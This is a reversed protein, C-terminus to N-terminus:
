IDKPVTPPPRLKRALDETQEKTMGPAPRVPPAAEPPVADPAAQAPAPSPVPAAERPPSTDPPAERSWADTIVVHRAAPGPQAAMAVALVRGWADLLPRGGIAGTAPVGAEVVEVQGEAVIRRVVGETLVVEGAADVGAAYVKDGAKPAVGRIPLPWSGAGDVALKCLGLKVDAFAVRAPITRPPITVTVQAGPAIGECTTAMVGTAVTFAIGTVASKGGMDVVQVRGVSRSADSQIEKVTRGPAVPAGGPSLAYWAGAGAAAAVVLVGALVLGKRGSVEVPAAALAADYAARRGADSLVAFADRVRMERRPDPPTTAKRFEAQLREHARAIDAAKADSRVGLAEYHTERPHSM